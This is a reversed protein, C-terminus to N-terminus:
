RLVMTQDYRSAVTLMGAVSMVVGALLIAALM